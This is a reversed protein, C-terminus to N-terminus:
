LPYPTISNFQISLSTYPSYLSLYYVHLHQNQFRLAMSLKGDLLHAAREHHFDLGCMIVICSCIIWCCWSNDHLSSSNLVDALCALMRWLCSASGIHGDKSQVEMRAASDIFCRVAAVAAVM